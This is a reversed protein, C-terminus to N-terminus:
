ELNKLLTEYMELKDELHKIKIQVMNWNTEVFAPAEPRCRQQYVPDKRMYTDLMLFLSIKEKITEIRYIIEQKDM